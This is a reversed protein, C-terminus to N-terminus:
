DPILESQGIRKLTEAVEDFNQIGQRFPATFQRKRSSVLNTARSSSGLFKLMIDQHRGCNLESYDIVTAHTPGRAEALKDWGNYLSRIWSLRKTLKSPDVYVQQNLVEERNRDEAKNIFVGTLEARVLSVYSELPNRKLFIVKWDPQLPLAEIGSNKLHIPFAKFGVIPEGVTRFARDIFQSPNDDRMGVDKGVMGLSDLVESPLEVYNKKFIEGFCRVDDASNLLDVLHYSGTRPHTVIVFKQM